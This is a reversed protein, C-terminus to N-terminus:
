RVGVGLRAPWHIEVPGAGFENELRAVLEKSLAEWEAPALKQKLLAVPASSRVNSEWFARMSPYANRHATTHIEVERFGADAMELRFEEVDALPGKGAAFPLGPLCARLTDFLAAMLPVQDLPAWSSVVAHRGPRLVRALERFGAARDPFFMLGFMSFAADFSADAFPLSQADAQHIEVNGIGAEAARRRLQAVMAEAFDVAVVREAAAAVQLSLTGPGAAVDLVHARAPLRGLAIADRAYLAFIPLLDAVYGAAITNWPGPQALLSPQPM